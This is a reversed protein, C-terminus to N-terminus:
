YLGFWASMAGGTIATTTQNAFNLTTPLSTQGTLMNALRYNPASLRSNTTSGGGTAKWTPVKTSWTGNMLVAVYYHGNTLNAPTVWPTAIPGTQSTLVTGIDASVAVRNGSSDYLGLFNGATASGSDGASSLGWEIGVTQKTTFVPM